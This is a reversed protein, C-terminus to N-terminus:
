LADRAATDDEAGAACVLLATIWWVIVTAVGPICLRQPIGCRGLTSALIEFYRVRMRVSFIPATRLVSARIAHTARASLAPVALLLGVCCEVRTARASLSSQPRAPTQLLSRFLSGALASGVWWLTSM